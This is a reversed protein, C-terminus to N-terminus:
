EAFCSEIWGRLNKAMFEFADDPAQRSRKLTQFSHNATPILQLTTTKKLRQCVRKLRRLEALKDRTGSLFLMPLDVEALHDARETAPKDIPHLPFGFFVLGVVRDLPREAAAMSTMRGGFSHGGALMQLDPAMTNAAAVAARITAMCVTNSNRGAGVESYPFNYRFSAIGERYLSEAISNVTAHRCHSSAGHGLVLVYRAHRPRLLISTVQGKEPTATFTSVTEQM